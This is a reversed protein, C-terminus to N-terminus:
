RGYAGPDRFVFAASLVAFSENGAALEIWKKEKQLDHAWSDARDKATEAVANKMGNDDGGANAGMPGRQMSGEAYAGIFKTMTLGVTNKIAESHTKGEVGGQGDASIGVASLQRERGDPFQVSKWSVQARDSSDDFSAEGFIKTGQPIAVSDEHIVEKTVIGIIPMAQNSVIIKQTLRISLRTGAPLQTKGDVGTRAIIMSSSRDPVSASSGGGSSQSLYDKSSPVSRSNMQSQELQALADNTPNSEISKVAGVSGSDAKEHFETTPPKSEPLMLLVIVLAIVSAVGAHTIRKWNIDQKAVFPKAEKFFIRSFWNQNKVVEM